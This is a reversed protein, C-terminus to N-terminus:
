LGVLKTLKALKAEAKEARKTAKREAKQAKKWWKRYQKAREADTMTGGLYFMESSPACWGGAAVLGKIEPDVECFNLEVQEFKVPGRECNVEPLIDSYMASEDAWSM